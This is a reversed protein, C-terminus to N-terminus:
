SLRKVLAAIAKASNFNEPVLDVVSIDIQFTDNLESVLSIIDFSDLIGGDVLSTEKEFDIDSRIGKLINIIQDMAAGVGEYIKPKRMGLKIM